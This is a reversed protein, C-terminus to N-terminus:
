LRRLNPTTIFVIAPQHDHADLTEKKEEKNNKMQAKKHSYKQM